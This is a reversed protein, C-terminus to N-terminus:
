FKIRLISLHVAWWLTRGLAELKQLVKKLPQDTLVVVKHVEFYPCFKQSALVLALAFNKIFPYWLEICALAYIM